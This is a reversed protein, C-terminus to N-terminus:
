EKEADSEDSKAPAKGGGGGAGVREQTLGAQSVARVDSDLKIGFADLKKLGAAYEAWHQDPDQGQERVMEDHTMAGARVLRVYALGEKDPEIMPMPPPTWQADPPAPCDIEGAIIMQEMAWRWVPDCFHPILMNWRWDHVNAWHSLRAMRASSFNVQSYDGTLDEYTVGLCCGRSALNSKSFSDHDSVVPPNSFEVSKGMPLYSITGPEITEITPDGQEDPAGLAGAGGDTDTVFAAFCAAIKNRMLTADLYEDFDKLDFIAPALWTVGRVQGPRDCRYIHAVDEAPVRRSVFRSSSIIAAGPHQDFLWFATRRGQKDYEVGQITPGGTDGTFGNKVTDIYDPELLQVRFGLVSDRHWRRVALAEGSLAATFLGLSQQGTFTRDGDYDCDTSESWARWMEMFRRRPREAGIAEAEIGWGVTNNVITAIGKRAYGNNRHLDRAVNRLEQLSGINATNADTPARAWQRRREPASSADYHRAIVTAAARARLRRLAFDPALALLFRDVM